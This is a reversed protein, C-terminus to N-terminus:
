GVAGRVAQRLWAHGPESTARRAWIMAIDTRPVRFPAPGMVLPLVASARRAVPEPVTAVVASTAVLFLAGAFDEVVVRSRREGARRGLAGAIPGGFRREIGVDVHDRALYEDLSRPPRSGRRVVCRWDDALLPLSACWEPVIPPGFLLDAMGTALAELPDAPPAAVGFTIRPAKMGLAALIPGLLVVHLYDSSLLRFHRTEVRPDFPRPPALLAGADGLLRKLPDRLERARETLAMSRGQKVLLPDDFTDRLRALARSMAPQSRGFRRAAKGVSATELLADLAVLLNLDLASLNAM